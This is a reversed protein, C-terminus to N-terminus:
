YHTCYVRLYCECATYYASSGCLCFRTQGRARYEPCLHVGWDMPIVLQIEERDVPTRSPSSSLLANQFPGYMVCVDGSKLTYGHTRQRALRVPKKSNVRRIVPCVEFTRTEGLSLSVIPRTSQPGGMIGEDDAHWACRDSGSEYYNLTCSNPFETPDLNFGGFLWVTLKNLWPPFPKPQDLFGSYSYPTSVDDRCFWATSRGLKVGKETHLRAWCKTELLENFMAERWGPPVVSRYIDLCAENGISLYREYLIQGSKGSVCDHATGSWLTDSPALEEGKSRSRGTVSGLELVHGVDACESEGFEDEPWPSLYGRSQELHRKVLGDLPRARASDRLDNTMTTSSYM